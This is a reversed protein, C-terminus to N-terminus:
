LESVKEDKLNVSSKRPPPTPFSAFREDKDDGVESDLEVGFGNGSHGTGAGDSGECGSTEWNTGVQEHTFIVIIMITFTCSIDNNFNASINRFITHSLKITVVNFNKQSLRIKPNIKRALQSSHLLKPFTM